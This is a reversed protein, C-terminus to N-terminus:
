RRGAPLNAQPAAELLGEGGRATACLAYAPRVERGRPASAALAPAPWLGRLNRVRAGARGARHVQDGDPRHGLTRAPAQWRAHAHRGPVPHHRRRALLRDLIARLGAAGGGERDVPVVQWQRLVWGMVPFRFLNERALYNIGRQVGSGVLPPDLYSAHNAALIVGGELPVREANYVRWRFYFKFLARYGCWGIFYPINMAPLTSFTIRSVDFSGCGGFRTATESCQQPCRIDARRPPISNASRVEGWKRM